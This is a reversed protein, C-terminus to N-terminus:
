RTYSSGARFNEIFIYVFGGRVLGSFGLIISSRDQLCRLLSAFTINCMACGDSYESRSGHDVIRFKNTYPTRRMNLTGSSFCRTNRTKRTEAGFNGSHLM